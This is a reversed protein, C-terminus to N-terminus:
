QPANLKARVEECKDETLEYSRMALLSAIYGLIPLGFRIAVITILVVQTQDQNAVFGVLGLIFSAASSGIAMSIQNCLMFTSSVFGNAKSGTIAQAYDVCDPLMAWSLGQMLTSVLGFLTMLIILVTDPTKPQALLIAMPIISCTTMILYLRKKGVKSTLVPLLLNSVVGTISSVFAIVSVLDMRNLVYKFFYVNVSMQAAQALMDTGFAIFLRILPKNKTIMHLESLFNIKPKKHSVSGQDYKKAGWAVNWYALTVLVGILAGLRAWGQQGGGLVEVMPLAFTTILTRGIQVAVNKWSVLITRSVSDKGVIPVLAQHTVAVLSFAVTYAIYAAYLFAVKMNASFDPSSFLVYLSIGLLPACFMLYPRYSGWRTKTQDAIFGILPDIVADIIKTVLMLGAVAMQSVGFIDTCFFTLYSGVLLNALTFGMGGSAVKLYNVYDLKRKPKTTSENM